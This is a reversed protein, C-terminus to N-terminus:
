FSFFAEPNSVKGDLWVMLHLHCGTSYGTTGVYGIVDGKKVRQGVRAVYRTAHNYGTTVYRGDVRGHDIMLRNGYGANYYRETVVGDAAAKIPTNCSAGFDTGDHLKWVKLVPHLRMGFRSTIAGGVPRIFGKGAATGTSGAEKKAEGGKPETKKDAAKKDGAAKDGAKADGAAQQKGRTRAADAEAKSQAIASEDQRRREEAAKRLEEAQEAEVREAIRKEVDGQEAILANAQSVSAEHSQSAAAQAQAQSEVLAAVTREQEAATTNLQERRTLQAAAAARQNALDRELASQKDRAAELTKQVDELKDLETQATDFVTTSWQVRNSIDRIQTGNVVISIGVLGTRQQYETRAITGVKALQAQVNREGQAVAAKATELEEQAAAWLGAAAQDQEQALDLQHRTESLAAQADTLRRRSQDLESSTNALTKTAADLQAQAATLDAKVRDRKDTLEDASVPLTLTLGVAVAALGAVLRRLPPHNAFRGQSADSNRPGGM